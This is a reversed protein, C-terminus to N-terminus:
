WVAPTGAPVPVPVIGAGGAATAQAATTRSAGALWTANMGSQAVIDQLSVQQLVEHMRREAEAFAARILCKTGLGCPKSPANCDYLPSSGEFVAVIDRLSIRALPRGLAYGGKAGRHSRLLGAKVLQQFVKALYSASVHQAQAVDEVAFDAREPHAAMYFLSDLALETSQSYRM